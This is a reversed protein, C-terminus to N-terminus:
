ATSCTYNIYCCNILSNWYVQWWGGSWRWASQLALLTHGTVKIRARREWSKKGLVAADAVVFFDFLFIVRFVLSPTSPHLGLNPRVKQESADSSQGSRIFLVGGVLVVGILSKREKNIQLPLRSANRELPRASKSWSFSFEGRACWVYFDPAKFLHIIIMM